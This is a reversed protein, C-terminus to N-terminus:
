NISRCMPCEISIKFWERICNKHYIHKCTLEAILKGRSINCLCIPCKDLIKNRKTKIFVINNERTELYKAFNHYILLNNSFYFYDKYLFYLKFLTVLSYTSMLMYQSYVNTTRSLTIFIIIDIIYCSIIKVIIIKIARSVQRYNFYLLENNDM